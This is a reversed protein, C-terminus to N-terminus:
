RTEEPFGEILRQAIWQAQAETLLTKWPPMATGHKGHLIIIALAEASQGALADRTLPNGLGGQLTMGHCSGCDQRVLRILEPANLSAPESAQSACAVAAGGLAILGFLLRRMPTCSATSRQLACQRVDIARWNNCAASTRPLPM